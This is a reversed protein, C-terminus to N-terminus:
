HGLKRLQLSLRKLHEQEEKVLMNILERGKDECTADQMSLFFLVSDKEFQIALRLADAATKVRSLQEDVEASSRFVHQDAMMRIYSYLENDPDNVTATQVEPPLQAKLLEFRKKHEVEQSALDAFLGKVGADEIIKQAKDYFAKGNEEIEIGIQFVEGASFCFIM